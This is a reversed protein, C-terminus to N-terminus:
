RREGGDRGQADSGSAWWGKGDADRGMVVDIVMVVIAGRPM